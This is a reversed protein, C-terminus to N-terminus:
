LILSEIMQFSYSSEEVTELSIAFVDHYEDLNAVKATGNEAAVLRDGKKVSGIVKVPVRGKLAIAQGEAESNMIFGPKESIVGIARQGQQSMTVECDGGIMMVTGVDYNADTKYIEALDAYRASTAEGDFLRAKIDAAQTRVVVTNALKETSSSRGDLTVSDDALGQFRIARIIGGATRIPISTVGPNATEIADFGALKQANRSQESTGTISGTLEGIFRSATFIQTSADYVTAGQANRINGQHIGVINGVVDGTLNGFLDQAYINKWTRQASGLNIRNTQGPAITLAPFASALQGSFASRTLILMDDFDTTSASNSIRVRIPGNTQNEIVPTSGGSIYVALDRRTGVTLGDDGFGTRTTFGVIDGTRRVYQDPLLGGLRESNTATGWFRFGAADSIGQNNVSNLTIGRNIRNSSASFGSIQNTESLTFTEDNSFVATTIGGVVARLIVHSANQTDKVVQTLIQSTGFGPASQPGILVFNSGNWISLQNTGTDYWMDGQSLGQPPISSVEPGSAVKFKTGDYFKLKKVGSDYWIQGSIPKAPPLTDSFNELLHLFNENQVEGYGSYNQGVFRLDTTNNVTGPAVSTLFSGNYRDVRYSM